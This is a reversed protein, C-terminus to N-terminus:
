DNELEEIRERWAKREAIVEKYQKSYKVVIAIFDVIFTLKNDLAMIEEFCRAMIYDTNNLKHKLMDVEIIMNTEEDQEQAKQEDLVIRSNVLHYCYLYDFNFDDGVEYEGNINTVFRQIYNNEDFWIDARM